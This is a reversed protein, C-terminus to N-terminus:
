RPPLGQNLRREAKKQLRERRRQERLQRREESSLPEPRAAAKDTPKLVEHDTGSAGRNEPGRDVASDPAEPRPAPPPGAQRAPPVLGRLNPKSLGQFLKQLGNVGAELSNGLLDAGVAKWHEKLAEGDIKPNRLTGRIPLDFRARQLMPTLVPVNSRPPILALHAVMDLNKDFDVSGDLGISALNAVPIALGEQYVKRGAIRVAVPDRLVALPRRDLQFVTLLDSALPGPMFRFDDFLIEGEARAEAGAPAIIPFYADALALSVRGRVRTAGDLVPAVFSLVRHSVEDNVVAGDLRSAPGLHLWTSGDKARVLEPELHLIGGNLRADIPDVTLRGAAARLVVPVGSLRM